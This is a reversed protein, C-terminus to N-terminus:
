NVFCFEILEKVDVLDRANKTGSSRSTRSSCAVLCLHRLFMGLIGLDLWDGSLPSPSLLSPVSKWRFMNSDVQSWVLKFVVAHMSKSRNLTLYSTRCVFVEFYSQHRKSAEKARGFFMWKIPNETFGLRRIVIPPKPFKWSIGMPILGQLQLELQPLAVWPLKSRSPHQDLSLSRQFSANEFIWRKHPGIFEYSM